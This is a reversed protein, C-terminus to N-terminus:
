YDDFFPQCQHLRSFHPQFHGSNQHRLIHITGLSPDSFVDPNTEIQVVFDDFSLKSQEFLASSFDELGGCNSIQINLHPEELQEVPNFGIAGVVSHPSSFSTSICYPRACRQNQPCSFDTYEPFLTNQTILSM